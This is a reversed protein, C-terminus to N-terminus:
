FPALRVCLNMIHWGLDHVCFLTETLQFWTNIEYYAGYEIITLTKLKLAIAIQRRKIKKRCNEDPFEVQFLDFLLFLDNCGKNEDGKRIL